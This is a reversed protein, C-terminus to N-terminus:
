NVDEEHILRGTQYEREFCSSVQFIDKRREIKAPGFSYHFLQEERELVSVFYADHVTVDLRLVDDHM